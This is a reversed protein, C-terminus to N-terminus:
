RISCSCEMGHHQFLYQQVFHSFINDLYRKNITSLANQTTCSYTINRSLQKRRDSINVRFDDEGPDVLGVYGTYLQQYDDFDLHPYGFFIRAPNGYMDKQQAYLDFEGDANNLVISGGGFILKGYFLPDRAISISPVSILRGEYPQQQIDEPSFTSFSFGSIIGITIDHLSPEDYDEIQIYLSATSKDYYFSEYTTTVSALSDVKALLKDAAIVSGVIGFNQATFGDLLTSDVYSYINLSNAEWIGAGINIWQTNLQGIDIEILFRPESVSLASHQALTLAM